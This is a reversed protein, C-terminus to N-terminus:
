PTKSGRAPTPPESVGPRRGGSAPKRLGIRQAVAANLRGLEELFAEADIRGDRLFQQVERAFERPRNAVQSHVITRKHIRGDVILKKVFSVRSASWLRYGKKNRPPEPVKKAYLWNLLTQKSVSLERAVELTTMYKM